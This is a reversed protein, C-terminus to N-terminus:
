VPLNSKERKVSVLETPEAISKANSETRNQEIVQVLVRFSGYKSWAKITPWDLGLRKGAAQIADGKAVAEALQRFRRDNSSRVAM